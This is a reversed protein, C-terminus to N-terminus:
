NAHEFRSTDSYANHFINAVCLFFSYGASFLAVVIGPLILPSLLQRLPRFNGAIESIEPRSPQFGIMSLTSQLGGSVVFFLVSCGTVIAFLHRLTRIRMASLQHVTFYTGILMVLSAFLDISAATGSFTNLSFQDRSCTGFCVPWGYVYWSPRVDQRVPFFDAQIGWLGVAVVFVALWPASKSRTLSETM